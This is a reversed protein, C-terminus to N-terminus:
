LGSASMRLRAIESAVRAAFRNDTEDLTADFEYRTQTGAKTISVKVTSSAWPWASVWDVGAVQFLALSDYQQDYRGLLQRVQRAVRPGRGEGPRDDGADDLADLYEALPFRYERAITEDPLTGTVPEWVVDPGARRVHLSLSGCGTEGCSCAGVVVDRGTRAPYLAHSLPPLLREPDLGQDNRYGALLDLGDVVPRLSATGREDIAFRFRVANM